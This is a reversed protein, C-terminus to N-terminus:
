ELDIKRMGRIILFKAEKNEKIIAEKLARDLTAIIAKKGKCYDFLGTDVYSNELDIFKVNKKKIIELAVNIATKEKVNLRKSKQLKKLEEITQIPIILTPNGFQEEIEKFLDIKQKVCTIFFNTDFIIEM